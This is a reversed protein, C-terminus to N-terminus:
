FTMEKKIEEKFSIIMSYLTTRSGHTHPSETTKTTILSWGEDM